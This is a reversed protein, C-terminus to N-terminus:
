PEIGLTKELPRIISQRYYRRLKEIVLVGIAYASFWLWVLSLCAHLLKQYWDTLNTLSALWIAPFHRVTASAASALFLLVIGTIAYPTSHWLAILESDKKRSPLESPLYRITFIIQDWYSM